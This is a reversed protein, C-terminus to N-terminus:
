RVSWFTALGLTVVVCIAWFLRDAVPEDESIYGVGHLSSSSSYAAATARMSSKMVM